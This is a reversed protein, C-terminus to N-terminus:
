YSFELEQVDLGRLERLYYALDKDTLSELFARKAAPNLKRVSELRSERQSKRNRTRM